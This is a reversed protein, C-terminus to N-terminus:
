AIGGNYGNPTGSQKAPVNRPVIQCRQCVHGSEGLDGGSLGVQQRPPLDIKKAIRKESAVPAEVTEM